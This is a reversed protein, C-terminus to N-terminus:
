CKILIFNINACDANTFDSFIEAHTIAKGDQVRGNDNIINRANRQDLNSLLANSTVAM